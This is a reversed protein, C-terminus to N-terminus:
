VRRQVGKEGERESEKESKGGRGKARRKTVKDGKSTNM